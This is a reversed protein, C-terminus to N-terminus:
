MTSLLSIPLLMKSQKFTLNSGSILFDSSKVHLFVYKFFRHIYSFIATALSKILENSMVRNGAQAQELLSQSVTDMQFRIKCRKFTKVQGLCKWIANDGKRIFTNSCDITTPPQCRYLM